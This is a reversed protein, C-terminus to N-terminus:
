EEGKKIAEAAKEIGQKLTPWDEQVLTAAMNIASEVTPVKDNVTALTTTIEERVKPWDNQAFTAATQLKTELVPLENQYLHFSQQKM